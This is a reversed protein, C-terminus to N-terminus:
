DTWPLREGRLSPTQALTSGQVGYMGVVGVGIALTMSVVIWVPDKTNFLRVLPVGVRLHVLRRASVDPATWLSRVVM